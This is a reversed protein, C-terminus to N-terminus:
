VQGVRYGGRGRGQMQPRQPFTPDFHASQVTSAFATWVIVLSYKQLVDLTLTLFCGWGPEM